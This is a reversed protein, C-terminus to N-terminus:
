WGAFSWGPSASATLTIVDGYLYTTQSPVVGVSGSGTTATAVTYANQEDFGIDWTAGLPRSDGDFDSSPLAAATNSGADRAPSTLGLHYRAVLSGSGQFRPDASVDNATGPPTNGAYDNPTNNWLLSYDTSIGNWWYFGGGGATASNNALINNAFFGNNQAAIAGAYGGSTQGDARNGAITNNVVRVPFGTSLGNVLMGGGVPGTNSFCRNVCRATNSVILNNTVTVVNQGWADVGAGEAWYNNLTTGDGGPSEALNNYIGNGEIRDAQAGSALGIGGGAAVSSRNVNGTIRNHRIVVKTSVNRLFGIGAGSGYTSINDVGLAHLTNGAIRSDEIVSTDGNNAIAIGSGIAFGQTSTIHNDHVDVNVIRAGTSKKIYIGGGYAEGKTGNAVLVNGYIESAIILPSGDEISIGAGTVKKDVKVPPQNYRIVSNSITVPNTTKLKLGHEAYEITARNLYGSSGADYKLEKWDGPAPAPSASTFTIPGDSHLNGKIKIKVGAAVRVTTGPAITIVVGPDITVDAAATIVGPGWTGNTTQTPSIIDGNPHNQLNPAGWAAGTGLSLVAALALVLGLSMTTIFRIVRFKDM